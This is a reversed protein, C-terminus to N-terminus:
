ISWASDRVGFVVVHGQAVAGVSLTWDEGAIPRCGEQIWLVVFVCDQTCAAEVCGATICCAGCVRLSLGPEACMCRGCVTGLEQLPGGPAYRM